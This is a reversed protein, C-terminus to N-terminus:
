RVRSQKQGRNVPCIYDIELYSNSIYFFDFLDRIHTNCLFLGIMRESPTQEYCHIRKMGASWCLMSLTKM